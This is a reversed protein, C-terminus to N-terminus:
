RHSIPGDAMEDFALQHSKMTLHSVGSHLKTDIGSSKGSFEIELLKTLSMWSICSKVYRDDSDNYRELQDFKLQIVQNSKNM